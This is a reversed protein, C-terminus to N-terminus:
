TVVDALRALEGVASPDDLPARLHTDAVMAAPPREEPALVAFGYGLRRCAYGLMLGLQGGGVVGVTAGPLIPVQDGMLARLQAHPARGRHGRGDAREPLRNAAGPAGPTRAGTHRRGAAGRERRRGRRHDPHRSARRPADPSDLVPLRPGLPGLEEGARRAR